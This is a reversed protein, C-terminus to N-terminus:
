ILKKFTRLHSVTFHINYLYLLRVNCWYFAAYLTNCRIGWFNLFLISYLTRLFLPLATLHSTLPATPTPFRRGYWDCTFVPVALWRLSCRFGAEIAFSSEHHHMSTAVGFRLLDTNTFYVWTRSIINRNWLIDEFKSFANCNWPRIFLHCREIILNYIKYVACFYPTISSHFFNRIDFLINDIKWIYIDLTKWPKLLM